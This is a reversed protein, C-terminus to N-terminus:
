CKSKNVNLTRPSASLMRIVEKNKLLIKEIEQTFRPYIDAILELWYETENASGASIKLFRSYEKGKYKGFGEAINAGVSFAAKLLQESIIWSVKENPFKRILTVTLLGVEKSRKWFVLDKYTKIM